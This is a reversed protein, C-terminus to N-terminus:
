CRRRCRPYSLSRGAPTIIRSKRKGKESARVLVSRGYSAMGADRDDIWPHAM